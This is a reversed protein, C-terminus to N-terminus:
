LAQGTLCTPIPKQSYKIKLIHILSKQNEDNSCASAVTIWTISCIINLLSIVKYKLSIM